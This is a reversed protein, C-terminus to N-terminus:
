ERLVGSLIGIPKDNLIRPIDPNDASVDLEALRSFRIRDGNLFFEISEINAGIEWCNEIIECLAGFNQSQTATTLQEEFEDAYRRSITINTIFAHLQELLRILSMFKIQEIEFERLSYDKVIKQREGFNNVTSIDIGVLNSNPRLYVGTHFSDSFVKKPMTRYLYITRNNM